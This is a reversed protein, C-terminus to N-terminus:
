SRVPGLIAEVVADDARLAFLAVRRDVRDAGVNAPADTRMVLESVGEPLEVRVEVEDRGGTLEVEEDVGPGALHVTSGAAGQAEFRILLPRGEAGDNPFVLRGEEALWQVVGAPHAEHASIGAGFEVRVSTSVAAGLADADDDGLEDRLDDAFPRLDYWRERGDDSTGDPAGLVDEVSDIQAQDFGFTDIYVAAFGAAAIGELQRDMPQTAWVEQWDAIRGKMGGFSWRLRGSGLIYPRAHDYLGMRVLPTEPFAVVPFQFVMAGAPLASEMDAVFARDIGEAARALEYAPKVPGPLVDFLGVLAVVVVAVGVSRPRFRRELRRLVPEAALGLVAFSLFAILVAMRGWSRIQTFGAVALALSVGGVTAVLAMSLQWTGLRRVLRSREDDAPLLGLVAGAGIVLGLVGLLGIATGGEGPLDVAAARRGISAMPGLRHDPSPSVVQTLHLAYTESDSVTRETVRENAGHDRRYLIEPALNATLVFGLAGAVAIAGVVPGLRRGRLAELGGAVLVLIASFMVYYPDSSGIVVVAAAVVLARRRLRGTDWTGDRRDRRLLPLGGTTVWLALLAGLPVCFYASLPPHQLGHWFRYPLFAYLVGLAGALLPRVGFARLVGYAVVSILVFGIAFWANLVAFPSDFLRGLAEWALLHIRDGGQPFDYLEQGYPAGLQPAYGYGGELQETRVVMAYFVNDLGYSWPVGFRWGWPRFTGLFTAASAAAVGLSRRAERRLEAV